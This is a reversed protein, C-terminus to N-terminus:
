RPRAQDPPLPVGREHGPRAAARLVPRRPVPHQAPGLHVGRPELVERARRRHEHGVAVTLREGGVVARGQAAFWEMMVDHLRRGIRRGEMEPDVFLAWVNRRVLDAVAFGAIAGGAETAYGTGWASRALTRSACLSARPMAIPRDSLDEYDRAGARSSM